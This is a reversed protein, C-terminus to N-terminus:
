YLTSKVRDEIFKEIAQLEDETKGENLQQSIIRGLSPMVSRDVKAEADWLKSRTISKACHFYIEKVTVVIVSKPLKGKYEFQKLLEHSVALKASGNIRLCERFGPVLVLLGIEPNEVINSICDLRNNGPRDPIAITKSDLTKIFGPYDGRPSCDHTGSSGSTSLISFPSLQLFQESLTDLESKEKNVSLAMPQDYIKRLRELTSITDFEM